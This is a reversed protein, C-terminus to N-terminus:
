DMRQGYDISFDKPLHAGLLHIVAGPVSGVMWIIRQSLALAVAPAVGVGAFKVFLGALVGEVIVAGGISVPVVGLIWSLAFFVYYYEIGAEIGLDRGVFWFGTIVAIQMVITLGFVVVITAPSACYIVIARKLKRALALAWNRTRMWAGALLRRGKKSVATLGLGCAAVIAAWCIARGHWAFRNMSGNAGGFDLSLGDGGLLVLYFVVAIIVTGLLGIIRDVFVSLAAEFKKDNLSALFDEARQASKRQEQRAQTPDFLELTALVQDCVADMADKMTEPGSITVILFQAPQALVWVQRQWM